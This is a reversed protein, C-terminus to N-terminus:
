VEQLGRSVMKTKNPPNSKQLYEMEKEKNQVLFEILQGQYNCGLCEAPIDKPYPGGPHIMIPEHGCKPCVIDYIMKECKREFV